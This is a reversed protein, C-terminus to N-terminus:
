ARTTTVVPSNIGYVGGGWTTFNYIHTDVCHLLCTATTSIYADVCTLAIVRVHFVIIISSVTSDHFIMEWDSLNKYTTTERTVM